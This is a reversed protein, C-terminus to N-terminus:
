YRIQDQYHTKFVNSNAINSGVINPRLQPGTKNNLSRLLPDTKKNLSKLLPGTKINLPRSMSVKIKM